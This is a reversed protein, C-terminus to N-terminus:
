AAATAGPEVDRHAGALYAVLATIALGWLVTVPGTGLGIGGRSPPLALWDAFSAGLPRTIVYATWFMAVEPAGIRSQAVLPIAFLVAFVIGSTLYGWGFTVATMDGAATGLAFTALVTGWYFLERPKTHISHISLTGERAQWQWLIVGLMAAFVATSVVYPIGIGVHLIDAAMTGFVSVMVVTLWYKWAVYTRSRMQVVFAVAFGLFGLPVSVLPGITHALFDSATEGMGTTLIKLVWFFVTIEPVKSWPHRAVVVPLPATGGQTSASPVDDRDRGM